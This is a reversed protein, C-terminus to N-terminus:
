SNMKFPFHRCSSGLDTIELEISDLHSQISNGGVFDSIIESSRIPAAPSKEM